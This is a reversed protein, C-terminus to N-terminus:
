ADGSDPKRAVLVLNLPNPVDPAIMLATEDFDFDMPATADAAKVAKGQGRIRHVADLAWRRFSEPLFPLTVPLLLWKAVRYRRTEVQAIHDPAGMRLVSRVQLWPTVVRRLAAASYERLHWRNWPKQFPLLRLRRDPTVIIMHGGPKLVRRAERLYGAEDAVHEIVQFSLVVDFTEDAFPLASGAHIQRFSLNPARYRESAFEIAERSIDVAVISEATGALSAAGYGSGCGLDLVRKGACYDRAFRYSAIHMLYIVYGGLSNWYADEIVREGSPELEYTM